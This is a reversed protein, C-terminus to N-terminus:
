MISKRYSLPSMGTQKKFFKSFQPLGAFNMMRAIQSVSLNMDALSQKAFSIMYYDLWYGPSKGSTSTVCQYLYARSINLSGSYFSLNHKEKYNNQLLTFFKTAISPSRTTEVAIKRELVYYLPGYFLALTVYKACTLNHPNDEKLAINKFVNVYVNIGYSEREELKVVPNQIISTRIDNFKIADASLDTMFDDVFVIGRQIANKSCVKTKVTQGKIYSILCHGDIVHRNGNIIVYGKGKLVEIFTNEIPVFEYEDTSSLIHEDFLYIKNGIQYDEKIENRAVEEISLVKLPKKM